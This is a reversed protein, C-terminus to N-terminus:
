LKSVVENRACANLHFIELIECGDWHCVLGAQRFLQTAAPNNTAVRVRRLQM